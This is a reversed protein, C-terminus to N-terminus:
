NGNRCLVSSILWSKVQVAETQWTRCTCCSHFMSDLWWIKGEQCFILGWPRPSGSPVMTIEYITWKQLQYGVTVPPPPVLVYLGPACTCNSTYILVPPPTNYGQTNDKKQSVLLMNGTISSPILNGPHIHAHLNPKQARTRGKPSAVCRCIVHDSSCTPCLRPLGQICWDICTLAFIIQGWIHFCLSFDIHGKEEEPKERNNSGWVKRGSSAEAAGAAWPAWRATGPRYVEVGPEWCPPVDVRSVRSGTLSVYSSIFASHVRRALEAAAKLRLKVGETKEGIIWCLKPSKSFCRFWM